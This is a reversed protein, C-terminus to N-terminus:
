RLSITRGTKASTRAADLIKVVTVNLPLAALDTDAVKVTGSVVAAFYKFPDDLPAARPPLNQDEAPVQESRRVRMVTGDVTVIQGKEGYIEMDKRSIPWNWSAQIIGQASPYTVVITAEDDVKPYIHPKLQQTVASVSTPEAGKMLWTILDAGYCGFDILAGGGNKVPDTLWELFEPSVGIEKPGRHGDHVVVKRITGLEGRTVAIDFAAHTTPYWSTEYNTLVHVRHKTALVQIASAHELSVALPKEVMVHVGRPAAAQVVALHDYISGFAAVAEPKVTDLMKGLDTFLLARDVHHEAAYRQALATNPEYVGVVAIDGADLRRFAGHVHDHTLGAIALRLKPTDQVYARAEARADHRAHPSDSAWGFALTVVVAAYGIGAVSGTVRTRKGNLGPDM